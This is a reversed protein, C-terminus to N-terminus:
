EAMERAMGELLTNYMTDSNTCLHVEKLGTYAHQKVADIAIELIREVDHNGCYHGTSLLAVGVYELKLSQAEAFATEYAIALDEEGEDVSLTNFDPADVLIVHRRGTAMMRTYDLDDKERYGHTAEPSSAAIVGVRDRPWQTEYGFDNISSKSAVLYVSNPLTYRAMIIKQDKM